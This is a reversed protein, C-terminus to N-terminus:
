IYLRNIQGKIEKEIEIIQRRYNGFMKNIKLTEDLLDKKLNIFRMKPKMDNEETESRRKNKKKLYKNLINNQNQNKKQLPKSSSLNKRININNIKNKRSKNNLFFYIPALCLNKNDTEHIAKKFIINKIRKKPFYNINMTPLYNFKIPSENKEKNITNRLTINSFNTLTKLYTNENNNTKIIMRLKQEKNINLNKKRNKENSTFLRYNFQTMEDKYLKNKKRNSETKIYKIENNKRESM